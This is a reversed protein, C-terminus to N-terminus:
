IETALKVESHPRDHRLIESNVNVFRAIQPGARGVVVELCFVSKHMQCVLAQLHLAFAVSLVFLAVSQAVLIQLSIKVLIEALVVQVDLLM